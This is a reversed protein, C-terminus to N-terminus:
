VGSLDIFGFERHRRLEALSRFKEAVRDGERSGAANTNGELTRVGSASASAVFFVHGTGGDLWYGLMGRAPQDHLRGEREAWAAWQYVSAARVKQPLKAPDAGAQLLCWYVFAACWAYGEGLGVAALFRRIWPGKNPGGVEQVDNNACARAVHLAREPVSASAWQADTMTTVFSPKNM